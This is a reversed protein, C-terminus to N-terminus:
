DVPMEKAEPLNQERKERAAKVLDLLEAQSRDRRFDYNVVVGFRQDQIREGEKPESAQVIETLDMGTKVEDVSVWLRIYKHKSRDNDAGHTFARDERFPIWVGPAIERDDRFRILENPGFVDFYFENWLGGIEHKQQSSVSDGQLWAMLEKYAHHQTWALIVTWELWDKEIVEADLAEKLDTLSLEDRSRMSDIDGNGSRAQYYFRKLGDMATASAHAKLAIEKAQEDTMQRPLPESDALARSTMLMMTALILLRCLQQLNSTMKIGWERISNRHCESSGTM